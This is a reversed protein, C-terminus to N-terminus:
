TLGYVKIDETLPEIEKGNFRISPSGMFRFMQAQEINKICITEVRTPVSIKSRLMEIQQLAAQYHSCGDTYLVQIELM